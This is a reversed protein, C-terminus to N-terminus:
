GVIQLYLHLPLLERPAAALNTVRFTAPLSNSNNWSLSWHTYNGNILFIQNVNGSKELLWTKDYIMLYNWNLILWFIDQESSMGATSSSKLILSFIREELGECPGVRSITSISNLFIALSPWCVWYWSESRLSFSRLKLSIFINKQCVLMHSWTVKIYSLKM